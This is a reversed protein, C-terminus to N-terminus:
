KFFSETTISNGTIVTRGTSTSDYGGTLVYASFGAIGGGSVGLGGGFDVDVTIGASGTSGANVDFGFETFDGYQNSETEITSRFEQVTVTSGITSQGPMAQAVGCFTGLLLPTAFYAIKM